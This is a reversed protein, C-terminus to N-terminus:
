RSVSAIFHALNEIDDDTLPQASMTMSLDTDARTQAKYGRLQTVLYDRPLGTLRPIQNQGSLHERERKAVAGSVM